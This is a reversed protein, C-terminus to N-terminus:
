MSQYTKLVRLFIYTGEKKKKGQLENTLSVQNNTRYRRVTQSKSIADERYLKFHGKTRKNRYNTTPDLFKIM